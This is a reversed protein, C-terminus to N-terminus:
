EDDARVLSATIYNAYYADHPHLIITVGNDLVFGDIATVHTRTSEDFYRAQRVDVITRGVVDRKRV